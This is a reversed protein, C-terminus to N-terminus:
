AQQQMHTLLFNKVAHLELLQKPPRKTPNWKRPEGLSLSLREGARFGCSAPTTAPVRTANDVRLFDAVQFSTDVLATQKKHRTKSCSTASNKSHM